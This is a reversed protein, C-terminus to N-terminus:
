VSGTAETENKAAEVEYKHRVTLIESKYNAEFESKMNNWCYLCYEKFLRREEGADVFVKPVKNAPIGLKHQMFPIADAVIDAIDQNTDEDDWTIKCHRKVSKILAEINSDM